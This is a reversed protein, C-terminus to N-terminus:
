SASEGCKISLGWVQWVKLVVPRRTSQMFVHALAKWLQMVFFERGVVRVECGVCGENKVGEAHRAQANALQCVSRSMSGIRLDM